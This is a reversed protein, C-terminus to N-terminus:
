PFCAVQGNENGASRVGRSSETLEAFLKLHSFKENQHMLAIVDSKAECCQTIFAASTSPTKNALIAASAADEIDRRTDRNYLEALSKDQFNCPTVRDISLEVEFDLTCYSYKCSINRAKSIIFAYPFQSDQNFLM